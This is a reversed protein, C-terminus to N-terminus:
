RRSNEKDTNNQPHIIEKIGQSGTSKYNHSASSNPQTHLKLNIGGNPINYSSSNTFQLHRKDFACRKLEYNASFSSIASNLNCNNFEQKLKLSSNTYTTIKERKTIIVVNRNSLENQRRISVHM